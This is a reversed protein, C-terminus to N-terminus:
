PKTNYAAIWHDVGGLDIAIRADCLIDGSGSDTLTGASIWNSMQALTPITAFLYGVERAMSGLPGMLMYQDAAVNGEHIFHILSFNGSGVTSGTSLQAAVELATVRSTGAAALDFGLDEVKCRLPCMVGGTLLASAAKIGVEFNGARLAFINDGSPNGYAQVLHTTIAGTTQAGSPSVRHRWGAKDSTASTNSLYTEEWEQAASWPEMTNFSGISRGNLQNRKNLAVFVHTDNTAAAYVATGLWLDGTDNFQSGTAAGSSATGLYPNGDSDYWVDASAAIAVQTKEIKMVGEVKAGIKSGSAVDEVLVAALGAIEVVAGGLLASSATYDLVAGVQHTQGKPLSM